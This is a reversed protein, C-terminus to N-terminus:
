EFPSVTNKGADVDGTVTALSHVPTSSRLPTVVSACRLSDKVKWPEGVGDVCGPAVGDEGFVGSWPGTADGDFVSMRLRAAACSRLPAVSSAITGQVATASPLRAPACRPPKSVPRAFPSFEDEGSDSGL